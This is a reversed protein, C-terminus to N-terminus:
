LPLDPCNVNHPFSLPTSIMADDNPAPEVDYRASIEEIGFFIMITAPM